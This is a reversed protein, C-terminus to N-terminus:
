HFDGTRSSGMFVCRKLAMNIPGKPFHKGLINKEKKKIAQSCKIKNLSSSKLVRLYQLLPYM